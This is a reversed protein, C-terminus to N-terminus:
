PAVTFLSGLAAAPTLDTGMATLAAWVGIATSDLVPIGLEAELPAMVSLGRFNTNFILIADPKSRKHISRVADAIADPPVTSFAFNDLLDMGLEGVVTYGQKNFNVSMANINARPLPSVIAIKRAGLLKLVDLTALATSVMPIGSREKVASCFERDPTFGIGAGKTGNWCILEVEAHRLMEIADDLAAVNYGDAPQGSGNAWLPIRAYCAALGTFKGIIAETTREVVRNSSPVVVGFARESLLQM